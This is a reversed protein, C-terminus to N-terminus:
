EILDGRKWRDQLTTLGLIKLGDECEMKGMGPIENCTKPSKSIKIHQICEL